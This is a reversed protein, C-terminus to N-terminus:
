RHIVTSGVVLDNKFPCNDFNFILHALYYKSKRTIYITEYTKQLETLTEVHEKTDQHMWVMASLIYCILSDDNPWTRIENM